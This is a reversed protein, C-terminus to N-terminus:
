GEAGASLAPRGAEINMIVIRGMAIGPKEVLHWVIWALLYVIPLTLVFLCIAMLPPSNLKDAHNLVLYSHILLMVLMHILYVSYSVDAMFPFIGRGLFSSAWGALRELVAPMGMYPYLVMICFGAAIVARVLGYKIENGELPVAAVAVALLSFLLANKGGKHYANAVMMGSLFMSIKLLLFAPCLFSAMYGGAVGWFAYSMAVLFLACPIISIRAILIMIFPFVAYFQMELGISWDPLVTGNYYDPMIGFMFGYHVAINQWSQDYYAKIPAFGIGASQTMDGLFPGCLLAATLMLYYVPAIRFFRRIWFRLWSSPKELPERDSRLSTQYFMLFGSIIMFLDVAFEPMILLPVNWHCLILVHGVVVWLAALGRMGDLCGLRNKEDM